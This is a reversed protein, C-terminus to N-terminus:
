EDAKAGVRFALRDLYSIQLLVFAVLFAIFIPVPLILERALEAVGEPQQVAFRAVTLSAPMVEPDVAVVLPWLLAQAHFLWSALVVMLLLPLAPLVMSRGLGVGARWRGRQGRFFLTFLVLAPISVWGPPVMGLFTNLRGAEQARLFGDLVLPGTGVFLWPAFPVLLLESWRGLPRLGGIGFGAVAALGVPLTAAVLTPLWTNALVTGVSAGSDVPPGDSGSYLWPWLVWGVFVVFLVLGPVLLARSILRNAGDAPSPDEKAMVEFRARTVLLLGVAILGMLGLGVLLLVSEASGLGFQFARFGHDFVDLMPTTTAGAPGGGTLLWPATFSQLAVAIVGLGVVAGITASATVTAGVSDRGRLASLFLTAAVAVVLGFSIAAVLWVLTGRPQEAFSGPELREARWCVLLAVPAYGALPLALLARTIRRALPGAQDAVLALLPAAVLAFLLPLLALLLVFGVPGALGEEFLQRYNEGGVSEPSRLPNGDQFSRRLTALSPLLYSWALAILAPILLALGLITRAAPDLGRASPTAARGAAPPQGPVPDSM